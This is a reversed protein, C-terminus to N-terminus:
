RRIGAGALLGFCNVCPVGTVYAAAGDLAVGQRAAWSIADAVAHLDVAAGSQGKRRKVPPAEAAAGAVASARVLSRAYGWALVREDLPQQQVIVAGMDGAAKTGYLSGLTRAQVALQLWHTDSHRDTSSGEACAM